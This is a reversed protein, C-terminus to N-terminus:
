ATPAATGETGSANTSEIEMDRKFDPPLYKNDIGYHKARRKIFAHMGEYGGAVGGSRLFTNTENAIKQSYITRYDKSM